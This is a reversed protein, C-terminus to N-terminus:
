ACKVSPNPPLSLLSFALCPLPLDLSLLRVKTAAEMKESFNSNEILLMKMREEGKQKEVKNREVAAQLNEIQTILANKENSSESSNANFNSEISLLSSQLREVESNLRMKESLLFEKETDFNIKKENEDSKFNELVKQIKEKELLIKEKEQEIEKSKEDFSEKQLKLVNQLKIKDTLVKKKEKQYEVKKEEANISATELSVKLQQIIDSLSAIEQVARASSDELRGKNSRLDDLEVNAAELEDRFKQVESVLHEKEIEIKSEKERLLNL